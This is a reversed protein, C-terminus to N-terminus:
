RYASFASIKRLVSVLFSYDTLRIDYIHKWFGRFHARIRLKFGFTSFALIEGLCNGCTGGCNEGSSLELGGYFYGEWVEFIVLCEGFTM